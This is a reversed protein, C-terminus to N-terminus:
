GAVLLHYDTTCQWTIGDSEKMTINVGKQLCQYIGDLQVNNENRHLTDYVEAKISLAELQDLTRSFGQIRVLYDMSTESKRDDPTAQITLLLYPFQTQQPITFYIRNSVISTLDPNGLLAQKVRALVEISRDAM